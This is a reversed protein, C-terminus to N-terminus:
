STFKGGADMLERVWAASAAVRLATDIRNLAIIDPLVALWECKGYQEMDVGKTKLQKVHCLPRESYNHYRREFGEGGGGMGRAGATAKKETRCLIIDEGQMRGDIATGPAELSLSNILWAPIM